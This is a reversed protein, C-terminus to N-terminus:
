RSWARVALAGAHPDAGAAPRDPNGAARQAAPQRHRRLGAARRKCCCPPWAWCARCSCCACRGPGCRVCSAPCCTGLRGVMPSGSLWLATGLTVFCLWLPASLYAMAGTAFMARHVRHLGPEAILRANQLNGQCWRRDRQLEALLDPPQQEYSGILDAVLWVHYGARRMLAAEVFDHSM